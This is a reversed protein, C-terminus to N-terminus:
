NKVEAAYRALLQPQNPQWIDTIFTSLPKKYRGLSKDLVFSVVAINDMNRVTLNRIHYTGTQQRQLSLWASKSLPDPSETSQYSFNDAVVLAQPDQSYVANILRYELATYRSIETGAAPLTPAPQVPDTAWCHDPVLLATWILGLWLTKSFHHPM